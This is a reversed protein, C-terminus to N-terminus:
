LLGVLDEFRTSREQDEVSLKGADRGFNQMWDKDPLDEYTWHARKLPGM